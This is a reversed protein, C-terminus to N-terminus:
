GTCQIKKMTTGGVEKFASAGIYKEELLNGLEKFALGPYRQRMDRVHHAVQRNYNRNAALVVDMLAVAPHAKSNTTYAGTNAIAAALITKGKHQSYGHASPTMLAKGLRNVIKVIELHQAADFLTM